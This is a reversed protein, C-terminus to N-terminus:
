DRYPQVEDINKIIHLHAQKLLLPSPAVFSGASLPKDIRGKEWSKFSGLGILDLGSLFEFGFEVEEIHM